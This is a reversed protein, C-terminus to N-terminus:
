IQTTKNRGRFREVEDKAKKEIKDASIKM